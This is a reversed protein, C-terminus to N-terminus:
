LGIFDGFIRSIWLDGLASSLELAFLAEEDDDRPTKTLEAKPVQGGPWACKTPNLHHISSELFVACNKLWTM